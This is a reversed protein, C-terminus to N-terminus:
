GRTGYIRDLLSAFVARGVLEDLEAAYEEVGEPLAARPLRHDSPGDLMGHHGGIGTPGGCCPVWSRHDDAYSALMLRAQSRQEGGAVLASFVERKITQKPIMHARILPGDCPGWGPRGAFFCKM